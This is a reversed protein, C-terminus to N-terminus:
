SYKEVNFDVEGRVVTPDRLWNLVINVSLEDVVARKKMPDPINTIRADVYRLTERYASTHRAFEIQRHLVDTIRLYHADDRVRSGTIVKGFANKESDRKAARRLCAPRRKQRLAKPLECGMVKAVPPSSKKPTKASRPGHWFGENKKGCKQQEFGKMALHYDRKVRLPQGDKAVTWSWFSYSDNGSSKCVGVCNVQERLQTCMDVYVVKKQKKSPRSVTFPRTFATTVQGTRHKEVWDAYAERLPKRKEARTQPPIELIGKEPIVSGDVDPKRGKNVKRREKRRKGLERVPRVPKVVPEKGKPTSPEQGKGPRRRSPRSKVFNEGGSVKKSEVKEPRGAELGKLDREVTKVFLRFLHLIPGLSEDSMQTKKASYKSM